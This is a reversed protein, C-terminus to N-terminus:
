KVIVHVVEISLYRMLDSWHASVGVSINLNDLRTPFYYEHGLSEM